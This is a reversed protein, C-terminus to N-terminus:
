GEHRHRWTDTCTSGSIVGPPSMKGLFIGAVLDGLACIFLAVFSEGIVRKSGRFFSGFSRFLNFARIFGRSAIISLNVTFTLLSQLILRTTRLLRGTIRM